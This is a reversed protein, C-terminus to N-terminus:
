DLKYEFHNAGGEEVKAKLTTHENYNGPILEIPPPGEELGDKIVHRGVEQPSRVRVLYNGPSPGKERPLAFRGGVIAVAVTTAQGDDASFEISGKELPQGKFSVTGSVAQRKLPDPSCGAAAPLAAALLLAAARHPTSM